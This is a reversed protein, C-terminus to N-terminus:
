VKLKRPREMWYLPEDQNHRTFMGGLNIFRFQGRGPKTELIRQMSEMFALPYELDATVSGSYTGMARFHLM